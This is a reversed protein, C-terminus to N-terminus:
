HETKEQINEDNELIGVNWIIAIKDYKQQDNDLSSHLSTVQGPRTKFSQRVIGLHVVVVGVQHLVCVHFQSYVM